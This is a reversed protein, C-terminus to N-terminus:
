LNVTSAWGYYQSKSQLIHILSLKQGVQYMECWCCLLDLLQYGHGGSIWYRGDSLEAARSEARQHRLIDGLDTWEDGTYKFCRKSKSSSSNYGGCCLVSRVDNDWMAFNYYRSKPMEHVGHCTRDPNSADLSPLDIVEDHPSHGGCTFLSTLGALLTFHTLTPCKKASCQFCESAFPKVGM